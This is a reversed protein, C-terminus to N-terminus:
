PLRVSVAPDGYGVLLAGSLSTQSVALGEKLPPTENEQRVAGCKDERRHFVASTAM